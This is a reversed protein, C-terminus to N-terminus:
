AAKLAKQLINRAANVDRDLVLGCHPCRHVRESLEKPVLLGCDSCMQSTHKPDVKIVLSGAEEAKYGLMNIFGGWGVDSISKALKHNRVMNKVKLDEVALLSYDRALRYSCKHLYDRRQNRVKEHLSAVRVRAKNRNASGKKKRSLRRQAQKLRKESQRLYRPNDLTTGNSLAAFKELGVDVGAAVGPHTEPPSLAIEVSLVAYWKGSAERKITATKITGPVERHLRIKVLGLKSLRLKNNKFMAGRGAGFQTYTLSKYRDRSKFRPYGPKDGTKVRRFFGQFARDVRRIVEQLPQSHVERYCDNDRKAEKLWVQQQTTTINQQHEKWATRRQELCLNYVRRNTELWRLLTREQTKSPYIRFRYNRVRLNFTNKLM